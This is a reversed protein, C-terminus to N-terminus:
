PTQGRSPLLHKHFTSEFTNFLISFTYQNTLNDFIVYTTFSMLPGTEGKGMLTLAGYFLDAFNYGLLALVGRFQVGSTWVQSLLGAQKSETYKM